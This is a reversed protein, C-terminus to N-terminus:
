KKGKKKGSFLDPTAKMAKALAKSLATDTVAERVVEISGV